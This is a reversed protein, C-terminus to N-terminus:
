QARRLDEMTMDLDPELGAEIQAEWLDALADGSGGGADNMLADLAGVREQLRVRTRADLDGQRLQDELDAREHLKDALFEELIDPFTRRRFVPHSPPLQYRDM